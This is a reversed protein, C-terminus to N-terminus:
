PAAAAERLAGAADSTVPDGHSVTVLELEPVEALRAVAEKLAELDDIFFWRNIRSIGLRGKAGLHRTLISLPNRRDTATEGALADNGMLMQGAGPIPWEYFYEADKLGPVTHLIFGLTPLVDEVTGAVAAKTETAARHVAPCLVKLDPYRRAYFGIDMNHGSSPVIAYTPKGIAELAAMGAEDLAVVSHLLLEGSALRIAVMNRYMPFPLGGKVVHIGEAVREPKGHPYIRYGAM